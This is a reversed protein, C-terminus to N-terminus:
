RVSRGDILAGLRRLSGRLADDMAAQVRYTEMMATVRERESGATAMQVRAAEARQGLARRTQALSDLASRAAEVHADIAEPRLGPEGPLIRRRNSAPEISEALVIEPRWLAIGSTRPELSPTPAVLGAFASPVNDFKM